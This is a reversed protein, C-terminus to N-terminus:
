QIEEVYRVPEFRRISELLKEHKDNTLSHITMLFGVCNEESIVDTEAQINRVEMAQSRVFRLFPGLAQKSNFEVYINMVAARQRTFADLHHMATLVVFVALGAIVAIRYFGMGIALGVCASAWLGAATTLGKIQNHRTVVISGAGLFGIGSVVQAGIRSPDGAAYSEYMRQGTMMVICAGLCVLMYTRMGAPRNKLGRELGLVGGMVLSLAVRILIQVTDLAQM